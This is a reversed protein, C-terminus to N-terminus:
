RLAEVAARAGKLDRLGWLGDTFVATYNTIGRWRTEKSKRFRIDGSGDKKSKIGFDTMEAPRIQTLDWTKGQEVILVRRDTVYYFTAKAREHLRFPERLSWLAFAILGGIVLAGWGDAGGFILLGLGAVILVGASLAESVALHAAAWPDARGKWRLTEGEFLLSGAVFRDADKQKPL